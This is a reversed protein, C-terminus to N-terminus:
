NFKGLLRSLVGQMFLKLSSPNKILFSPALPRVNFRRMFDGVKISTFFRDVSMELKEKYLPVPAHIESVSKDMLKATEFGNPYCAVFACLRYQGSKMDPRLM